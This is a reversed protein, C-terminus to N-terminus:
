FKVSFASYTTPCHRKALKGLRSGYYKPFCAGCTLRSWLYYTYATDYGPLEGAEFYDGVNKADVPYFFQSGYIEFGNCNAASKSVPDPATCEQHVIKSMVNEGNKCDFTKHNKILDRLATNTVNKGVEDKSLALIGSGISDGNLKPVWNRSLSTLPKTVILDKEMFVGGWKQLTLYKVLGETLMIPCETENLGGGSVFGEVPTGMAYEEINVRALKVNAVKQLVRMIKNKELEEKKLPNTFLVYVSWNPHTRAASEVACADKPEWVNIYCSTETFFISRTTPAVSTIPPLADDENLYCSINDKWDWKTFSFDPGFSYKLYMIYSLIFLTITLFNWKRKKRFYVYRDVIVTRLVLKM